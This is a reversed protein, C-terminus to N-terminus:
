SRPRDYEREWASVEFAEGPTGGLCLIATGDEEAVASRLANPDPVYVFTGAPADVADGEITFTARGSSVFYLEEHQTGSEETERHEIIVQAGRTGSFVNAGFSTIGFHIRVPRWDVDDPQDEYEIEPMEDLQMAEYPAKTM